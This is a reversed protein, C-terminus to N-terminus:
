SSLLREGQYLPSSATTVGGGVNAASAINQLSENFNPRSQKSTPSQPIESPAKSFAMNTGVPKGSNSPQGIASPCLALMPICNPQPRTYKSTSIVTATTNANSTTGPKVKSPPGAPNMQELSGCTTSGTVSTAVPLLKPVSPSGWMQGIPKSGNLVDAPIAATSKSLDNTGLLKSSKTNNLYAEFSYKTQLPQRSNRHTQPQQSGIHGKTTALM